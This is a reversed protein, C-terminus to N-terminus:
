NKEKKFTCCSLKVYTSVTFYNGCDLLKCRVFNGYKQTPHCYKLGIRKASKLYVTFDTNNVITVKQYM